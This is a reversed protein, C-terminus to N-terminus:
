VVVEDDLEDEFDKTPEEAMGFDHYFTDNKELPAFEQPAYEVLNLVRIAQPYIGLKKGVGYDVIQLKVDVDSGNGILRKEDWAKGGADYVTISRNPEGDKREAKQRLTITNDKDARLRDALKEAKLSKVGNADPQFDITWEKGDKSYNLVPPGLVKAWFAKGRLYITKRTNSM